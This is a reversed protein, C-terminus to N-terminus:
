SWRKGIFIGIACIVVLIIWTPNEWAIPLYGMYIM